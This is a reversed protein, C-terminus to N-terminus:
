VSLKKCKASVRDLAGHWSSAVMGSVKWTNMVCRAYNSGVKGDRVSSVRLCSHLAVAEHWSSATGPASYSGHNAEQQLGDVGAVELM